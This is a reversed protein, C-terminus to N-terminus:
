QRMRARGKTGYRTAPVDTRMGKWIMLSFFVLALIIVIWLSAIAGTGWKIMIEKGNVEATHHWFGEYYNKVVIDSNGLINKGGKDKGKVLRAKQEEKTDKIQYKKGWLEIEVIRLDKKRSKAM